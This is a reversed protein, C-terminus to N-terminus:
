HIIDFKIGVVRWTGKGFLKETANMTRITELSLDIRQIRQNFSSSAIFITEKAKDIFQSSTLSLFVFSVLFVKSLLRPNLFINSIKYVLFSIFGIVLATYFTFSFLILGSIM